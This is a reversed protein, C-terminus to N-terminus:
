QMKSELMRRLLGLMALFHLWYYKTYFYVKSKGLAKPVEAFEYLSLTAIYRHSNKVYHSRYKANANKCFAFFMDRHYLCYVRRDIFSENRSIFAICSDLPLNERPLSEQSHIITTPEYDSRLDYHQSLRWVFDYDQHRELSEDWGIHLAPEKKLFLSSSQAQGGALLFNLMSEHEQLPRSLKLQRSKGNDYYASGYIGDCGWEKIKELRRTLHHPLYEDDSDLFAIFNGKARTAGLNRVVNGNRHPVYGLYNIRPDGFSDCVGKIDVDSGDDVVIIELNDYVQKLVSQLARRLEFTRNYVPIIVSILEM